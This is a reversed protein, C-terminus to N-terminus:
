HESLTIRKFVCEDNKLFSGFKYRSEHQANYHQSEKISIYRKFNYM